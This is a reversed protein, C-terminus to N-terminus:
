HKANLACMTWVHAYVSPTHPVHAMYTTYIDWVHVYISSIHWPSAWQMALPGETLMHKHSQPFKTQGNSHSTKVIREHPKAKLVGFHFRIINSAFPHHMTNAEACQQRMPTIVEMGAGYHAWAELVKSHILFTAYVM